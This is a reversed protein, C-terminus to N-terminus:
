SETDSDQEPIIEAAGLFDLIAQGMIFVRRMGAAQSARLQGSSVLRKITSLSINLVEATEERSYVRLPEIPARNDYSM